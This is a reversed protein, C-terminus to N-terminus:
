SLDLRRAEVTGRAAEGSIARVKGLFEKVLLMESSEVSPAGVMQSISVGSMLLDVLRDSLTRRLPYTAVVVSSKKSVKALERAKQIAVNMGGLADVLKHNFAQEGTWPRGKAVAEVAQRDMKRWTVIRKLFEEYVQDAMAQLQKRNEGFKTVGSYFDANPATKVQEWNIKLNKFVGELSIKGIFTGISGTISGPQAVIWDAASAVWYGGSAGYDGISAVVPTKRDQAYRIARAITESAEAEGGPSDIRLVIAKVRSDKAAKRIDDALQDAAEVDGSMMSPAYNKGGRMITGKCFMLAIIDQDEIKPAMHAAYNDFDIVSAGSGAAKRAMKLVQDYYLYTDVLGPAIDKMDVLPGKHMLAQVQQADLSKRGAAIGATLQGALGDLLAQTSERAAKSMGKETYTETLSKYEKRKEFEPVAGVFDLMERAYPVEAGLGMLAVGGIPQLLVKDCTSAVYYRVLGGPGNFTDAYAYVFKGSKRFKTIADRLEQAQAFGLGALDIKLVIGKVSSDVSAAEMGVLIKNLSKGQGKFLTAINLPAEEDVVHRDIDLLLVTKAPVEFEPPAAFRIYYIVVGVLVLTLFGISALFGILVKRM